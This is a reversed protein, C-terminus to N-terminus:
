GGSSKTTCTLNLNNAAVWGSKTDVEGWWWGDSCDETIRIHDGVRYTLCQCESNDHEPTCDSNAYVVYDVVRVEDVRNGLNELSIAEWCGKREGWWYGQIRSPHFLHALGGPCSEGPVEAAVSSRCVGERVYFDERSDDYDVLEQINSPDVVEVLSPRVWGESEGATGWWKTRGYIMIIHVVQGASLDLSSTGPPARYDVKVRALFDVDVPKVWSTLKITEMTLLMSVLEGNLQKGPRSTADHLAQWAISIGDSRFTDTCIVPLVRLISSRGKGLKICRFKAHNEPFREAYSPQSLPLLFISIRSIEDRLNDSLVLNSLTHQFSSSGPDLALLLWRGVNSVAERCKDRPARQILDFMGGPDVARVMMATQFETHERILTVDAGVTELDRKIAVDLRMHDLQLAAVLLEEVEEKGIIPWMARRKFRHWKSKPPCVKRSLNTLLVILRSIPGEPTGLRALSQAWSSHEHAAVSNMFRALDKLYLEMAQLERAIDDAERPANRFAKIYRISECTLELLSSISTVIGLVEAM